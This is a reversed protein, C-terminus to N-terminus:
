SVPSKCSNNLNVYKVGAPTLCLSVQSKCSDYTMVYKVGAPTMCQCVQSRCYDHMTVFIILGSCVHIIPTVMGRDRESAVELM